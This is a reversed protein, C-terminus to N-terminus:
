LYIGPKSAEKGVTQGKSYRKAKPDRAALEVVSGSGKKPIPAKNGRSVGEGQQWELVAERTVCGVNDGGGPALAAVGTSCGCM